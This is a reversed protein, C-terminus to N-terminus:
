GGQSQKENAEAWDGYPKPPPMRIVKLGRARHIKWAQRAASRGPKNRDEAIILTKVGDPIKIQALRVNGLSSWCPIGKMATFGAADEMSEAIGLIEGVHSPRWAGQGPTGLMYKGIHWKTAPDLLIRQIAKIAPGERVAVLLAPHYETDPRPKYPCRPHFRIDQLDIPLRRRKLYEEALTGVVTDAEEWRRIVSQTWNVHRYEPAPNGRAPDLLRIELLVAEKSCGAFCHVIMGHDGQRISLSPTSDVHAPCRCLAYNGKWTGELAAVVDITEQTPRRAILAM